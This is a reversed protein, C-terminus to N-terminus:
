PKENGGKLAQWKSWEKNTMRDMPRGLNNGSEIWESIWNLAKKLKENEAELEKIKELSCRYCNSGYKSSGREDNHRKCIWGGESDPFM